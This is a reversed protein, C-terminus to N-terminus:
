NRNSNGLPCYMLLKPEWVMGCTSASPILIKDLIYGMFMRIFISNTTVSSVTVLLKAAQFPLLLKLSMQFIMMMIIFFKILFREFDNFKWISISRIVCFWQHIKQSMMQKSNIKIVTVKSALTKHLNYLFTIVM